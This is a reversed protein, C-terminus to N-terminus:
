AFTDAIREPDDVLLRVATAVAGGFVAVTLGGILGAVILGVIMLPSFALQAAMQRAAAGQVRQPDMGSNMIEAWYAGQTVTGVVIWLVLLMLFLVLYAGFLTWFRGRTLRWSEGIIIKRRLLTLPFALSLRVEIWVFLGFAVLMGLIAVLGVLAVGSAAALLGGMIVFVMTLVVFAIYSGVLLLLTLAFMRLEDMGLRVFAFRADGPRLVARQAATMLMTFVVVALLELLLMRGVMAGMNAIDVASDGGQTMATAQMALFPRMAFMLGVTLAAYVLGWVLVALPRERVLRFGGGIIAGVSLM